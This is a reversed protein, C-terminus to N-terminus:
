KGAGLERIAEVLRYVHTGPNDPWRGDPQTDMDKSRRIAEDVKGAYRAIVLNAKNYSGLVGRLERELEKSTKAGLAWDAHHLYLWLEFCPNSIAM